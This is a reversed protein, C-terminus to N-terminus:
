AYVTLMMYARLGAGTYNSLMTADLVVDTSTYVAYSSPVEDTIESKITHHAEKPYRMVAIQFKGADGGTTAFAVDFGIREGAGVVLPSTPICDIHFKRTIGVSDAALELMGAVHRVVTPEWVAHYDREDDRHFGVHTIINANPGKVMRLQMSTFSYIPISPAAMPANASAPVLPEPRIGAFLRYIHDIEALVGNMYNFMFRRWGMNNPVQTQKQFGDIDVEGRYKRSHM